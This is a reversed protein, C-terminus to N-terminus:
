AQPDAHPPWAAAVRSGNRIPHERGERGLLVELGQDCARGVGRFYDRVLAEFRGLRLEVLSPGRIARVGYTTMFANQTSAEARSTAPATPAAGALLAACQEAARGGAGAPSGADT